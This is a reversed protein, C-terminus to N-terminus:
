VHRPEAVVQELQAAPRKRSSFPVLQVAQLSCVCTRVTTFRTSEQEGQLAACPQRVQESDGLLQM